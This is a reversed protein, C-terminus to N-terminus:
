VGGSSLRSVALRNRGDGRPTRNRGGTAREVRVTRGDAPERNALTAGLIIGGRQLVTPDKEILEFLRRASGSPTNRGSEWAEVTKTSVGCVFAFATQPLMLIDERLSKVSKATYKPTPEIKLTRIRPKLEGKQYARIEKLGRMIKDYARETM